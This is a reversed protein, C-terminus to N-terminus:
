QKYTGLAARLSKVSEPTLGDQGYEDAETFSFHKFSMEGPVYRTLSAHFDLAGTQQALRNINEAHVGSGPMVVIREAAQLILEKILTAGEMATKAQGSTLIRQCGLDILQELAKFPDLCRDFARHFTVDMPYAANVMRVTRAVDIEGNQLLCGVVVGDCQLEKCRIIDAVMISLEDETYCFDGARCRIIPFIPLSFERRCKEILGHSPTLGGERLACCLEVRDAGGLVAARASEFDTTAIEITYPM